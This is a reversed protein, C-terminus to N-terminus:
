HPDPTPTIVEGDVLMMNDYMNSGIISEMLGGFRTWESYSSNHPTVTTLSDSFDILGDFMKVEKSPIFEYFRYYDKIEDFL